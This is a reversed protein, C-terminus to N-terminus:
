KSKAALKLLQGVTESAKAGKKLWANAADLNIVIKKTPDKEKPMYYGLRELYKGDRPGRKEAAVIHFFPKNNTGARAMRIVIM